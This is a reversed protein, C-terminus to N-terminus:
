DSRVRVGSRGEACRVTEAAKIADEASNVSSCEDGGNGCRDVGYAQDLPIEVRLACREQGGFCECISERQVEGELANSGSLLGQLLGAGARVWIAEEVARVIWKVGTAKIGHM